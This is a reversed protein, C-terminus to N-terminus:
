YFKLTKLNILVQKTAKFHKEPSGPLCNKKVIKGRHGEGWCVCVCVCVCVSEREREKERERRCLFHQRLASSRAWIFIGLGWTQQSCGGWGVERAEGIKHFGWQPRLLEDTGMFPATPLICRGGLNIYSPPFFTCKSMEVEQQLVELHIFGLYIYSPCLSFGRYICDWRGLHLCLSRSLILNWGWLSMENWALIEVFDLKIWHALGEGAGMRRKGAGEGGFHTRSGM